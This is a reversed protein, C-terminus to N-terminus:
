RRVGLRRLQRDLGRHPTASMHGLRSAGSGQAYQPISVVNSGRVQSTQATLARLQLKVYADRQAASKTKFPGNEQTEARGQENEIYWYWGGFYRPETGRRENWHKTMGRDAFYVRVKKQDVAGTVSHPLSPM